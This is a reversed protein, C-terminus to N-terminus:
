RYSNSGTDEAGAEMAATLPQGKSGGMRVWRVDDKMDAWASGNTLYQLVSTSGDKGKFTMEKTYLLGQITVFVIRIGIVRCVVCFFALWM